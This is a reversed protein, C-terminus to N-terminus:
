IHILSLSLPRPEELVCRACRMFRSNISCAARVRVSRGLWRGIVEQQLVIALLKLGFGLVCAMVVGAWFSPPAAGHTAAREDASMMAYPM